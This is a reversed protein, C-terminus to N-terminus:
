LGLVELFGAEPTPSNMKQAAPDSICIKILKLQRVIQSVAITAPAFVIESSHSPPLPSSLPHSPQSACYFM